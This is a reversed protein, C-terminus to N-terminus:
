AYKANTLDIKKSRLTNISDKSPPPLVPLHPRYPFPVFLPISATKRAKDKDKNLIM